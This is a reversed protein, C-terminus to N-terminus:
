WVMGDEQLQVSQSDSLPGPSVTGARVKIVYTFYPHLGTLQLSTINSAVSFELSTDQETYVVTYYRLIGNIHEAPPPEWTLSISTSSYSVIQPRSPPATPAVHINNHFSMFFPHYLLNM